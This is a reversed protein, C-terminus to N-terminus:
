YRELFYSVHAMLVALGGTQSFVESNVNYWDTFENVQCHRGIEDITERVNLKNEWFSDRTM